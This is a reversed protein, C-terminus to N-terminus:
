FVRFDDIINLDERRKSLQDRIRKRIVNALRKDMEVIKFNSDSIGGKKIREQKFAYVEVSYPRRDGRVAVQAFYRIPQNEAPLFKRDGAKFYKSKFLRGNEETSRLGLPMSNVVARQIHTLPREVDNIRLGDGISTCASVWLFGFTIFIRYFVFSNHCKKPM